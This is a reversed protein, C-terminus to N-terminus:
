GQPVGSAVDVVSSQEGGVAVVQSREALYSHIWHHLYACLQLTSLKNM